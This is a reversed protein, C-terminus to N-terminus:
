QTAQSLYERLRAKDLHLIKERAHNTTTIYAPNGTRLYGSIQGLPSLGEKQLAAIIEELIKQFQEDDM